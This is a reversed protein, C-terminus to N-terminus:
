TYPESRIAGALAVANGLYAEIEAILSALAVDRRAGVVLKAGEAAFLKATSRGIGGSAGTVIAVKNQLRGMADSRPQRSRARRSRAAKAAVPSESESPFPTWGDPGGHVSRRRSPRGCRCGGRSM